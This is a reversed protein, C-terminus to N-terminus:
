RGGLRQGKAGIPCRVPGRLVPKFATKGGISKKAAEKAGELFEVAL